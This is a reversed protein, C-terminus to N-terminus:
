LDCSATSNRLINLFRQMIIAEWRNGERKIQYALKENVPKDDPLPKRTMCQTELLERFDPPTPLSRQSACELRETFDKGLEKTKNKIEKFRNNLEENLLKLVHQPDLSIEEELDLDQQTDTEHLNMEADCHTDLRFLCNEAVMQDIKQLLEIVQARNKMDTNDFVHYRNGCKEILWQLAEGESEIHEEISIDPYRDGWTFLVITHRWIDEGFIAMYEEIVRKQENKFSTDAPITLIMANPYKVREALGECELIATRVFEPNFKTSFYKWCSPTDMVTIQRGDVDGSHSTCKKTKGIEFIEDNFIINGALSKGSVIWGLLVARLKLFPFVDGKETLLDRKEQVKLRRAKAKEQNEDRKRQIELLMDEHTAFHKGNNVAVVGDIKVLLEEVGNGKNEIDFVHYRGGCRQIIQQLDEGQSQLHQEISEDKLSVTQTFLVIIHSWIREGFLNLHEEISIRHEQTFPLSLDIVLLFVHPGPPCKFVSCVLEQKIVEPSDQLGFTKWWCPTNILTIKRGNVEGDRRVSKVFFRGSEVRDGVISNIVSAKEFPQSGLVVVCLEQDM